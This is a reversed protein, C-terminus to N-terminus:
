AGCPCSSTSRCRRCPRCPGPSRPGRAASASPAVGLGVRAVGDGLGDDGHGGVEVVRLAGGGLLRALDGTELDQADDVLGGRGGQGVAHVLLALVLGDQHEVEAAAGEVDGEEVDALADELDLGGVAVGVEAAVVPVLPDDVPQDLGELAVVAHVQGLVLHGLLAELLGGLLGLHLQGGGLLGLDVQGEDGGGVRARQVEVVRQAPGLELLEGGVQELAAAARELLGDGVGAELGLVDVVDIMTPPEVRIGATASRTLPMVPLSGWLPTLGSSTTAMPAETWAPTSLPSTLSMRSRSTVGSDRPMSVLPPTMVLSMSRFVVMGVLRVSTNVVASSLWGDTSTWTSCPSRSIAWNLLVSPLNWSTSRGGAGRPTGWISTVKSM